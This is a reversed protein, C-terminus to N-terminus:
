DKNNVKKELLIKNLYFINGFLKTWFSMNSVYHLACLGFGMQHNIKRERRKILFFSTM